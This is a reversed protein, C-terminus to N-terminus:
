RLVNFSCMFNLTIFPLAFLADSWSAAFFKAHQTFLTPNAVNKGYARYVFACCLVTVSIFGVYCNHRLAHLDRRLILPSMLLLLVSLIITDEKSTFTTTSILAANIIPSWINKVLVMYATIVFVLFIFLLLTAAFEMGPGFAFSVVGTYTTCGTRRSCSCLIYLSFATATASVFFLFTGLVLGAKQFSLPISLIGGSIVACSFLSCFSEESLFRFPFFYLFTGLGM